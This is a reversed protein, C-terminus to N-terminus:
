DKFMELADRYISEQEAEIEKVMARKQSDTLDPDANVEVIQDSLETAAKATRRMWRSLGRMAAKGEDADLRDMEGDDMAKKANAFEASASEVERKMEMFRSRIARVGNPKIFDKAIPVHEVEIDGPATVGLKALDASDVIFTGLGGTYTRWLYRLSEPSVKTIDNEYRGAGMAVGADAISQAIKDFAGGKTNRWMKQSDPATSSGEPMINSGFSNRNAGLELAPKVATPTIAIASDLLINDSEPNLLNRFPIYADLMSSLMRVSAKSVSQGRSVEGLAVGFAYIPAYEQSMPINLTFDGAKFRLNKTREDWSAGLWRDEDDDMGMTAAMFGVAALGGLMAWAQAKHQGHVLTRYANATGQVAPNFFLWLAGLMPTAKGKRDFNVTVAKAARAAEGPSAGQKRLAAFLALRLANETAQNAIEVTHALAGVAKRSAIWAAKAVKGDRAYRMAGYADDYLKQTREAQAELDSMYSAGTKGGHMRYERLLRGMDSNPDKHTAAFQGMAKLASPYNAWAKAMIGAGENGAINITGTIADRAANRIIFAPNYGTYVGALWRNMKRMLEVVVPLQKGDLPRIQQALKEDKIQIRTMKGKVFVPVEDDQLPKTFESVKEGREDEITWDRFQPTNGAEGEIYAHAEALTRFEIVPRGIHRVIYSVSPKVSRSRPPADVTWLDSDPNQMALGLLSQRALNKEGAVVLLEYDRFINDLIHEAREGHGTARKVRPGYENEGKLPVYFQYAKEEDTLVEYAEDTILGYQQRMKMTIKTIERAAAAVEHLVDSRAYRKRIEAAKELSMGALEAATKDENGGIEKLREYREPAHQAHLLEELQEVTHGSKALKEILPKFLREKGQELRAAIRGPRNTEAGYYDAREAIKGGTVKEIQQQLQKVRQMSDQIHEQVLELKTQDPLTLRQEPGRRFTPDSTFSDMSRVKDGDPRPPEDDRLKRFMAHVYERAEKNDLGRLWDGVHPIQLRDAMKALWDRVMRVAKRYADNKAYLSGNPGVAEGLNALAEDVGRAFVYDEVRGNLKKDGRAYKRAKESEASRAWLAAQKRIFADRNALARMQQIYQDATLFRRIGYHLLEHWVTKVAEATGAIADRFLHIKGDSVLGSAGGADDARGTFHSLSEDIVIAPKHGLQGIASDVVDLLQAASLREREPVAGSAASKIVPLDGGKLKPEIEVTAAAAEASAASNEAALEAELEALAQQKEHLESQEPFAAGLRREIKKLDSQNEALYGQTQQLIRDLGNVRNAARTAIGPINIAPDLPWAILPDNEGPVNVRLEAALGNSRELHVGIYQLDMGGISGIKREGETGQKALDVFADYAAQSFEDRNDHAKGDLVAKFEGPRIIERKVLAANLEEITRQNHAIANSTAQKNWALKRQDDMHAAYLRGLREVDGKLGALKLYREDGSALAAAMEFASAESVDEMSRVSADGSMAQEIFRQKRANMGWMTSDYSGKTAYGRLDAESNQNGQRVIRGERQEVSAPFWPADLHFLYALRKQANVGTEMDKGGILIRKRGQRLDDFLREKKAHAKHDRMFAIHEPKVGEAILRKEIWEKMNFGRSAASQEGLGIDTFLMMSAGKLPDKQAGTSYEHGASEHYATIMDDIVRNLKSNPDSPLTSDVFRMDIASFRGDAIVSLIIDDGPKPPGKRSKIALIRDQLSRQYEKFGDPVPTVIIQRSGTKVDPRQVVDGLQESTLIDMFARVRSMLEPVNIFKAFRGVAEYGGAANQELGTVVEGYHNAWADFTSDGDEAMQQLGFFRQVTYLEGMTNTVPTGSAMVLARGPKKERLYQVKMFLDMARQSGSPDIGKINGQNTAFDLKRFEHAEDVFLRDVGLEEFTMLQDKPNEIIAKLRNELQEIRREIQKRTVRDGNDSEDLVAQWQEIQETIFQQTFDKSMGIRGFASHTIVIADPDNLAAQAVFKRRNHTHFNQEDAVMIQATPYLELFEKSFQALMHNPVVYMPKKSLGLRREEMGAAIMTFTKGAGVAHAYYTDGQQITRWIARKQHSRLNFRSSVGPLTLHSGDFSRPAINNYNDNYFTVLRESRKADTWIWKKFAERMKKAIDNAKETSEADTWTKGESDRYTIKIQRNNLVSDLIDAADKGKASWESVSGGRGEVNWQGTIPSYSIDFRSEMVERAFQQVDSAPIWHSGLQVTIEHPALPKPQVAKLAEVNRALSPDLKVAAEAEKLKRVVNGSLYDDATVWAGSPTRYIAEGLEDIVAQEDKGALKAVHALDLAGIDNLSVFMADRVNEIRPMSPKNITRGLLAPGKKVNGESDVSEIAHALAYEADLSLINKNKYRQSVSVTGDENERETITNALLEGHTSVFADYAQNLKALASQWDGDNLQEYQSQKLADRVSTWDKLFQVEKPKLAIAKGDAGNRHTLAVGQGSEVQMLAGNDAVYLGGEKKIKPDYDRQQVAAREAQSGRAPRYINEPLNLIAKAFLDEIDGDIPEVTYENARYMSGTLAHHGLVMEPHDAFYENIHANGQPTTIEKLGAWSEGAPAEGPARKRLFIVDTVVETGANDKFATQPMRIAGLLDAREALYKRARDNAKDMTGKSTVFVLLGGPKVRDITKAFFYDHLLFGHKKYEADGMIKINGFPPNGIAADFFDAPLKTQTFDGVIINSDPYLLQAINGTITDYEIGTYQSHKAMGEPMLGNFLGVGMGPEMVNGGNFGMRQLASYVSRIAAESTYHAYQTTRKAQAYEEPTLAAQLREGLSQWAADKYRGYQNPFIGNAIESAGWGTFKTLLTREDATAPRNEALIQKVTEVIKVNQEATNRWSGTRKLEGAAIRYNRSNGGRGSGARDSGSGANGHQDAAGQGRGGTGGVEVLDQGDRGRRKARVAGDDAGPVTGTQERAGDAQVRGPQSGTDGRDAIDAIPQTDANQKSGPQAPRTMANDQGAVERLVMNTLDAASLDVPSWRNAGSTAYRDGAKSSVRFMVAIGSPTTPVVGRLSSEGVHVYVNVGTDPHRMTLSVDGSGATGGENTSVPKQPRGKGDEHAVFGNEQLKDAMAALYKASEKLFQDKVDNGSERDFHDGYGNIHDVGWDQTLTMDSKAGTKKTRKAPKKVESGLAEAVEAPLERNLEAHLRASEEAGTMGETNLGPYNRAGEWFSLLYPKIGDGMDDIMTKAYESFSRVGSEIYAGAITMGDIMLEPDLGSNLQGLKKRMRERAAAVKDATFIKNGAFQEQNTPATEVPKAEAKAELKEPAPKDARLDELNGGNQLHEAVWQPKRGRGTWTQAPDSPNTYHAVGSAPKQQEAKIKTLADKKAVGDRDRLIRAKNEGSLHEWLVRDPVGVGTREIIERRAWPTLDKWWAGDADQEAKVEEVTPADERKGDLYDNVAQSESQPLLNEPKAGGAANGANGASVSPRSPEMSTHDDGSATASSEIPTVDGEYVTGEVDQWEGDVLAVKDGYPTEHTATFAAPAAMVPDPMATEAVPADSQKPQYQKPVTLLGPEADKAQAKISERVQMGYARVEDASMGTHQAVFQVYDADRKSPNKQSAIYAARDIDSAFTLDFQKKGYAFRPKAGALDTPLTQSAQGPKASEAVPQPTKAVPQVPETAAQEIPLAPQKAAVRKNIEAEIAKRAQIALKTWGGNNRAQQAVYKLRERLAQEDMDALAVDNSVAPAPEPEAVVDPAIGAADAPVPEVQAAQAGETAGPAEGLPAPEAAHEVGETISTDEPAIADVQAALADQNVPSDGVLEAAQQTVADAKQKARTLPGVPEATPEPINPAVQTISPASNGGGFVEGVKGLAKEQAANARADALRESEGQSRMYQVAKSAGTTGGAMLGSQMFTQLITNGVQGLYERFGAETNLGVGAPLKDTAFQGTTTLIEGPVEKKLAKWLFGVIQDTPMGKAAGKIAALQESLGFKEGIVEFASFLAARSAAQRGSQGAARGDSYEQGFSQMGMGALALGESGTLLLPLQQTISSIAGELNGVIADGREGIAQEKGRLWAGADSWVAAASDLGALDSEAEFFGAVAKGAGLAGKTVGRTIPDAGKFTNRTDFDYGSPKADGLRMPDAGVMADRGALADAAQPNLGQAAYQAARVARGKGTALAVTRDAANMPSLDTITAAEKARQEAIHKFARASIDQRDGLAAIAQQAQQPTMADFQDQLKRFYVKDMGMIPALDSRVAPAPTPQPPAAEAQAPQEAMILDGIQGAKALVQKGYAVDSANWSRAKFQGDGGHHGMVAEEMAGGADLRARIQRAAADVAQYPDFPNIGTQKAAGDIYQMLGKASSKGNQALPNYSSEQLGMAMLVNVPVNHQRAAREFIPRLETPPLIGPSARGSSLEPASSLSAPDPLDDVPAAELKPLGQAAALNAARIKETNANLDDTYQELYPKDIKRIEM